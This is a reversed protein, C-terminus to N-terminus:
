SRLVGCVPFPKLEYIAQSDKKTLQLLGLLHFCATTYQLVGSSHPKIKEREMGGMRFAVGARALGSTLWSIIICFKDNRVAMPRLSINTQLYKKRKIGTLGDPQV